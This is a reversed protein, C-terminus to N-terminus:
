TLQRQQQWRSLRERKGTRLVRLRCRDKHPKNYRSRPIHAQRPTSLHTKVLLDPLTPTRSSPFPLPLRASRCFFPDRRRFSANSAPEGFSAALGTKPRVRRTHLLRALNFKESAHSSAFINSPEFSMKPARHSHPAREESEPPPRIKVKCHRQIKDTM